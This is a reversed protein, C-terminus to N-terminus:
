KSLLYTIFSGLIAGIITFIGPIIYQKNKEFFNKDENSDKMILIVDRTRRDLLQDILMIIGILFTTVAPVIFKPAKILDSTSDALLSVSILSGFCIFFMSPIIKSLLISKGKVYKSIEQSFKTELGKAYVSDNTICFSTRNKFEIDIYIDEPILKYNIKIYSYYEDDLNCFEDISELIYDGVTITKYGFDEENINEEIKKIFRVFEDQHFKAPGYFKVISDQKKKM